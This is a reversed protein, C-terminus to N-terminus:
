RCRTSAIVLLLIGIFGAVGGVTPALFLGRFYWKAPDGTGTQWRVLWKLRKEPPKKMLTILFDVASLITIGFFPISGIAPIWRICGIFSGGHLISLPIQPLETLLM